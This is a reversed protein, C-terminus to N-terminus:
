PRGAKKTHDGYSLRGVIELLFDRETRSEARHALGRLYGITLRREVSADVSLQEHPGTVFDDPDTRM